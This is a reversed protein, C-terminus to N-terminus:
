HYLWPQLHDIERSFDAGDHIPEDGPNARLLLKRLESGDDLAECLLWAICRILLEAM